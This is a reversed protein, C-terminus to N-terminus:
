PWYFKRATMNKIQELWQETVNLHETADVKEFGRLMTEEETIRHVQLKTHKSTIPRSTQM